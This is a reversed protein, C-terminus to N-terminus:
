MRIFPLSVFCAATIWVTRFSGLFTEKLAVTGQQIITGNVGPIKALAESDHASLASIFQGVYKPSLGASLLSSAVNQGLYSM